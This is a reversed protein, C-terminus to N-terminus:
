VWAGGAVPRPGACVKLVDAAEEYGAAVHVVLPGIQNSLM